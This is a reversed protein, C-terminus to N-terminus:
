PSALEKDCLAQLAAFFKPEELQLAPYMYPYAKMLKTGFEVWDAYKVHPGIDATLGMNWLDVTISNRLAGTRVKPGGDKGRARRKAERQINLAHTAVVRRIKNQGTIGQKKLKMVLAEFGECKVKVDIYQSM